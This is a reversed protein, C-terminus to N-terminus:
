CHNSDNVDTVTYDGTLSPNSTTLLLYFHSHYYPILHVHLFACNYTYSGTTHLHYPVQM